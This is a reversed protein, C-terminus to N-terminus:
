ILDVHAEKLPVWSFVSTEMIKGGGQAGMSSAGVVGFNRILTSGASSDPKRCLFSVRHIVLICLYMTFLLAEKNDCSLKRPSLFGQFFPVDSEVLWAHHAPRKQM